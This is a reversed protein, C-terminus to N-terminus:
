LSVNADNDESYKMRLEDDNLDHDQPELWVLNETDGCEGCCHNDSTQKLSDYAGCTMCFTENM